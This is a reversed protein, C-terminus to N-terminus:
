GSCILPKSMKLTNNTNFNPFNFINKFWDKFTISLSLRKDSNRRSEKQRTSIWCANIPKLLFRVAIKLQWVSGPISTQSQCIFPPVINGLFSIDSFLYIFTMLFCRPALESIISVHETALLNIFLLAHRSPAEVSFLFWMKNLFYFFRVPSCFTVKLKSGFM